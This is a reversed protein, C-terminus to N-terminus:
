HIQFIQRVLLQFMQLLLELPQTLTAVVLFALTSGDNGNLLFRFLAPLVACLSLCLMEDYHLQSKQAGASRM